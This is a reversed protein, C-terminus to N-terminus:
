ASEEGDDTQDTPAAATGRRSAQPQDFPDTTQGVVAPVIIQRGPVACLTAPDSVNNAELLMWYLLPDGLLRAAINDIRDGAQIRYSSQPKFTNALPLITRALYPVADMADTEADAGSKPSSAAPVHRTRTRVLKGPAAHETQVPYRSLRRGIM